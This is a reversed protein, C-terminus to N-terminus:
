IRRRRRVCRVWYTELDRITRVPWTCDGEYNYERLLELFLRCVEHSLPEHKMARLELYSMKEVAKGSSEAMRQMSNFSMEFDLQGQLERPLSM